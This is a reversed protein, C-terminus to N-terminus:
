ERIFTHVVARGDVKVLRFVVTADGRLVLPEGDPAPDGGRLVRLDVPVVAAVRADRGHVRYALVDRTRDDVSGNAGPRGGVALYALGGGFTGPPPLAVQVARRAGPTGPRTPDAAYLAELAAALRDVREEAARAAREEGATEVAPLAAALLAAALVVALATRVPTV